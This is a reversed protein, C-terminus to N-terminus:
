GKDDILLHSMHHPDYRLWINISNALIYTMKFASDQQAARISYRIPFLVHYVICICIWFPDYRRTRPSVGPSADCGQINWIKKEFQTKLKVELKTFSLNRNYTIWPSKAVAHTRNRRAGCFKCHQLSAEKRERSVNSLLAASRRTTLGKWVAAIWRIIFRDSDGKVCEGSRLLLTWLGAYGWARLAHNRRQSWGGDVVIISLPSILAWFYSDHIM